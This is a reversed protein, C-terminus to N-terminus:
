MKEEPEQHDRPEWQDLLDRDCFLFFRVSVSFLFSPLLSSPLSPFFFRFFSPFFSSLSFLVFYFLFFSLSFRFLSPFLPFFFLSFCFTVLLALWNNALFVRIIKAKKSDTRSKRCKGRRGCTRAIGLISQLSCLVDLLNLSIYNDYFM